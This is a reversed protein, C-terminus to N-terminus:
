FSDDSLSMKATKLAFGRFTHSARNRSGSTPSHSRPRFYLTNSFYFTFAFVFCADLPYFCFSFPFLSGITELGGHGVLSCSSFSEDVYEDDDLSEDEPFDLVESPDTM